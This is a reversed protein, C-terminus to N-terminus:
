KFTMVSPGCVDLDYPGRLMLGWSQEGCCFIWQGTSLLHHFDSSGICLPFTVNPDDVGQVFLGTYLIPNVYHRPLPSFFWTM